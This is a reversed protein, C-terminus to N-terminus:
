ANPAYPWGHNGFNSFQRRLFDVRANMWRRDIHRRDVVEGYLASAMADLAFTLDMLVRTAASLDGSVGATRSLGTVNNELRDLATEFNCAPDVKLNAFAKISTALNM